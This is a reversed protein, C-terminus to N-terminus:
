VDGARFEAQTDRFSERGYGFVVLFWFLGLGGSLYVYLCNETHESPVEWGVLWLLSFPQRGIHEAIIRAIFRTPLCILHSSILHPNKKEKRKGTKAASLEGRAARREYYGGM